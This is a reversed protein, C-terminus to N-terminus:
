NGGLKGEDTLWKKIIIRIMQEPSNKRESCVKAFAFNLEGEKIILPIADNLFNKHNLPDVDAKDLADLISGKMIDDQILASNPASNETIASNPASNLLTKAQFMKKCGWCQIRKANGKYNWKHGCVPCKLEM